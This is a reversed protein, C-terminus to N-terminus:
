AEKAIDGAYERWNRSFISKSGPQAKNVGFMEEREMAKHAVARALFRPHYHQKVEKNQQFKKPKAIKVKM